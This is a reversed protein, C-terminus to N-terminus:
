HRGERMERILRDLNQRGGVARSAESMAAMMENNLRHSADRLESSPEYRPSIQDYLWQMLNRVAGDGPSRPTRARQFHAHLQNRECRRATRSYRTEGRSRRTAEGGQRGSPCAVVGCAAALECFPRGAEGRELTRHLTPGDLTGVFTMGRGCIPQISSGDM